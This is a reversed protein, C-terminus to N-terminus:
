AFAFAFTLITASGEELEKVADQDMEPDNSIADRVRAYPDKAVQELEDMDSDLNSDDDGDYHKEDVENVHAEHAENDEDTHFYDSFENSSSEETLRGDVNGGLPAIDESESSSSSECTKSDFENNHDGGLERGSVSGETGSSGSSEEDMSNDDDDSSERESDFDDIENDHDSGSNGYLAYFYADEDDDVAKNQADSKDANGKFDKKLEALYTANRLNRDTNDRVFKVAPYIHTFWFKESSMYGEHGLLAHAALQAGIEVKGICSNLFRQALHKVSRIDTGADAAVSEYKQTHLLCNYFLAASATINNEDKAMYNAQAMYNACGSSDYTFEWATNCQLAASFIPNYPVVRRDEKLPRCLDIAIPVPKHNPNQVLDYFSHDAEVATDLFLDPTHYPEGFYDDVLTGNAAANKREDCLYKKAKLFEKMEDQTHEIEPDPDCDVYIQSMRNQLSQTRGYAGRCGWEGSKGKQCTSSHCHRGTICVVQQGYRRIDFLRKEKPDDGAELEEFKCAECLPLTFEEAREHLDQDIRAWVSAGIFTEFATRIEKDDRYQDFVTRNVGGFSQLHLHLMLRAQMETVGYMALTQGLLGRLRSCVSGHRNRRNSNCPLGLAADSLAEQVVEYYIALASPDASALNTREMRSDPFANGVSSDFHAVDEPDLLRMLLKSDIPNPSVTLFSVAEGFRLALARLHTRALRRQTASYTVESGASLILKFLDKLIVRLEASPEQGSAVNALEEIRGSEKLLAVLKAWKQPAAKVRAATARAVQTRQLQNFLLFLFTSCRGFRRTYHLQMGRTITRPVPGSVSTPVGFVFLWPFAGGLLRHNDTYENIPNMELFAHIDFTTQTACGVNESADADEEVEEGANAEEERKHEKEGAISKLLSTCMRRLGMNSKQADTLVCVDAAHTIMSSKTGADHEESSVSPTASDMDVDSAAAAEPAELITDTAADDSAAANVAIAGTSEIVTAGDIIQGIVGQVAEEIEDTNIDDLELDGYLPHVAKLVKLWKMLVPVRISLRMRIDAAIDPKHAEFQQRTGVFQVTVLDSLMGVQESLKRAADFPADTAFSIVHGTLSDQTKGSMSFKLATAFLHTRALLLQEGLNPSVLELKLLDGFDFGNFISYPPAKHGPALMCTSCTSCVSAEADSEAGEPINVFRPDLAYAVGAVTTRTRFREFLQNLFPPVLDENIRDARLMSMTSQVKMTKFDSHPGACCCVACVNRPETGDVQKMLKEYIFLQDDTTPTQAAIHEM